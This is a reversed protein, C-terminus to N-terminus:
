NIPSLILRHKETKFIWMVHNSLNKLHRYHDKFWDRNMVWLSLWSFYLFLGVFCGRLCYNVYYLTTMLGSFFELRVSIGTSRPLSLLACCHVTRIGEKCCFYLRGPEKRAETSEDVFIFGAFAAWPELVKHKKETTVKWEYAVICEPWKHWQSKTVHSLYTTLTTSVHWFLGFCHSALYCRFMMLCTFFEMWCASVAGEKEGEVVWGWVLIYMRVLLSCACNM